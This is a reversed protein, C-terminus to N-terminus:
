ENALGVHVEVTDGLNEREKKLRDLRALIDRGTKARDTDIPLNADYICHLEETSCTATLIGTDHDFHTLMALLKITPLGRWRTANNTNEPALQRQSPQWMLSPAAKFIALAQTENAFVGCWDTFWTQFRYHDKSAITQWCRCPSCAFHLSSQATQRTKM